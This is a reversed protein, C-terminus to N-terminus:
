NARKPAGEKGTKRRSVDYIRSADYILCIEPLRRGGDERFTIGLFFLRKENDPSLELPNKSPCTYNM